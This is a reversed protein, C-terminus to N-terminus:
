EESNDEYAENCYEEEDYIEPPAFFTDIADKLDTQTVNEQCCYIMVAEHCAQNLEDAVTGKACAFQVYKWVISEKDEIRLFYDSACAKPRGHLYCEGLLAYIVDSIIYREDGVSEPISLSKKFMTEALSFRRTRKLYVANLFLIFSRLSVTADENLVFREMATNLAYEVLEYHNRNWGVYFEDAGFCGQETIHQLVYLCFDLVEKETMDTVLVQINDLAWDESNLRYIVARKQHWAAHRNDGTKEYWDAIRTYFYGLENNRTKSPLKRLYYVAKAAFGTWDKNDNVLCDTYSMLLHFMAYERFVPLAYDEHYVYTISAGNDYSYILECKEWSPKGILETEKEEVLNLFYEEQAKLAYEKNNLRELAEQAEKNGAASAKQYWDMAKPINRRFSIGREYAEGLEYQASDIGHEAAKQLWELAKDSHRESRYQNIIHPYADNDHAVLQCFCAEAKKEDAPTGVGELYMVGLQFLAEWKGLEVAKQFWYLAQSDSSECGIGKYYAVALNYCADANGQGASLTFWKFAEKPNKGIKKGDTLMEGAANQAEAHGQEAAKLLWRFAEKYHLHEKTRYLLGLKYQADVDGNEAEATLDKIFDSNHDKM